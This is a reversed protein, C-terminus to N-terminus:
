RDWDNDWSSIWFLLRIYVALCRFAALLEAIPPTRRVSPLTVSHLFMSSVCGGFQKSIGHKEAMKTMTSIWTDAALLDTQAEPLNPINSQAHDLEPPLLRYADSPLTSVSRQQPTRM